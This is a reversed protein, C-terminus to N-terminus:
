KINFPISLSLKLDTQDQFANSYGTWSDADSENMYKSFHVGVDAGKLSGSQIEYNAFLSGGFEVLEKYGEAQAGFGVAGSIGVTLGPAGINSLDREVSAFFAFEGDHNFDSGNNWWIDYAGNSGGYAQTTRYNFNGVDGHTDESNASTYTGEVRFNYAGVEKATLLALQYALEDYEANDHVFYAQPAIYFGDRTTYDFKVHTNSRNGDTLGAYAVESNIGGPLTYALGISYVDGADENNTDRFGYSDKFWPARYETAYVVGLEFGYAAVGFEGGTYAGAAFSYNVDLATPVSPQFIGAQATLVDNINFKLAATQIAGGNHTCDSAFAASCTSKGTPNLDYPNNVGWFNFEHDAEGNQWMDFTTYANFDFGVTNAILGSQFDISAFASGHDLNATKSDDAGEARVRDRAFLAVSGNIASDAIFGELANNLPAANISGAFLTGAIAVSLFTLKNNKM